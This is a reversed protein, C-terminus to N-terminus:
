QLLANSKRMEKKGFLGSLLKSISLGMNELLASPIRHLFTTFFSSYTSATRTQSLSNAHSM